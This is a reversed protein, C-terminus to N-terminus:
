FIRTMGPVCVSHVTRLVTFNEWQAPIRQLSMALNRVRDGENWGLLDFDFGGTTLARLIDETTCAQRRKALYGAASTALGKGYFQDSRVVGSSESSEESYMEDQGSM